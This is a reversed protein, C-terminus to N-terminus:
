NEGTINARREEATASDTQGSVVQGNGPQILNGHAGPQLLYALVVGEPYFPHAPIGGCFHIGLPLQIYTIPQRYVARPSTSPVVQRQFRYKRCLQSRDNMPASGIASVLPTQNALEAGPIENSFGWPAHIQAVGYGDITNEWWLFTIHSGGGRIILEDVKSVPAGADDTTIAETAVGPGHIEDPEQRTVAAVSISGAGGLRAM